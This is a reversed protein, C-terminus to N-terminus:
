TCFAPLLRAAYFGGGDSHQPLVRLEQQLTYTPHRKLFGQVVDENEAKLVSCTAYVLKSQPAKEAVLDLLEKQTQAFAEVEKAKLKWKRDPERALTGTGSCPADILVLDVGDFRPERPFSVHRIALEKVRSKAESLRQPFKDWAFVRGREGVSDALAITKGGAGACFDVVSEGGQLGCLEVIKQSGVDMVILRGNKKPASEFIARGESELTLGNEAV